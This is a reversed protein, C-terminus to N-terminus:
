LIIAKIWTLASPHSPLSLAFISSIAIGKGFDKKAEQLLKRKSGAM